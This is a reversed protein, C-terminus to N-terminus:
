AEVPKGALGGLVGNVFRFSDEESYQKALEVAEDVTVATDVEKIHLMEVAAIRLIYQDMKNMRDVRWETSVTNLKEDLETQHKLVLQVVKIAYERVEPHKSLASMEPLRCAEHLWESAQLCREIQSIMERTNPVPVPKSPEDIPTKLNDPHDMEYELLSRSVSALDRAASEIQEQADNVLARVANLILDEITARDMNAVNLLGQRDLQYLTLLALERSAHRANM